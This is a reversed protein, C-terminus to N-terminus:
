AQRWRENQALILSELKFCSEPDASSGEPIPRKAFMSSFGHAKSTEMSAKAKEFRLVDTTESTRANGCSGGPCAGGANRKREEVIDFLPSSILGGVQHLPRL